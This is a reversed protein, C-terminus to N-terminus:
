YNAVPQLYDNTFMEKEHIIKKHNNDMSYHFKAMYLPKCERFKLISCKSTTAVKESNETENEQILINGFIYM